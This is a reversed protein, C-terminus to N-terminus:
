IFDYKLHGEFLDKQLLFLQKRGKEDVQPGRASYTVQADHLLKGM